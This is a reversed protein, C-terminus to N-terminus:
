QPLYISSLNMWLLISPHGTRDPKSHDHSRKWTHTTRGPGSPHLDSVTLLMTAHKAKVALMKCKSNLSAIQEQYGKIKQALEEHHLIQAQLEQINSSPVPRDQIVQHAEEILGQLEGVEQEYQEYQVVAEQLINCQQIAVHQLQSAEHQLRLATHCVALSPMVDEPVQLTSQCRQVAQVQVKLGEMDALLRQRQLLQEKLSQRTVEPSTLVAQLQELAVHLAKVERELTEMSKNADQLSQLQTRISQQLEDTHRSLECVQQSLAQVQLVESLLEVKEAM